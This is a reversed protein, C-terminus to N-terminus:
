RTTVSLGRGFPRPSQGQKQYIVKSNKIDFIEDIDDKFILYIERVLELEKSEADQEQPKPPKQM